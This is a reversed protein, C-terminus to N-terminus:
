GASVRCRPAVWPRKPTDFVARMGRVCAAALLCRAADWTVKIHEGGLGSTAGTILVTRVALEPRRHPDVSM